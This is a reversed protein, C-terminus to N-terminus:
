FNHNTKGGKKRIVEAHLGGHYVKLL